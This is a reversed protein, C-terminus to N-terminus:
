KEIQKPFFLILYHIQESIHRLFSHRHQYDFNKGLTEKFTNNKCNKPFNGLKDMLAEKWDDLRSMWTPLVVAGGM